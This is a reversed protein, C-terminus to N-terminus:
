PLILLSSLHFIGLVELSVRRSRISTTRRHCEGLVTDYFSSCSSQIRAEQLHYGISCQERRSGHSWRNLNVPRNSFYHAQRGWHRTKWLGQCLTSWVHIRSCYCPILSLCSSWFRRHSGHCNWSCYAQAYLRRCARGSVSWKCVSISGWMIVYTSM